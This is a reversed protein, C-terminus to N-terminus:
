GPRLQRERIEGSQDGRGTGIQQLRKALARLQEGALAEAFDDTQESREIQRILADVVALVAPERAVVGNEADRQTDLFDDAFGAGEGVLPEAINEEDGALMWLEHGISVHRFTNADQVLEDWTDGKLDPRHLGVFVTREGGGSGVSQDNILLSVVPHNVGVHVCGSRFAIEVPSEFRRFAGVGGSKAPQPNAREVTERVPPHFGDGDRGM